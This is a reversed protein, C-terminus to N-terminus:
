ESGALRDAMPYLERNEVTMRHGLVALMRVLDIRFRIFSQEIAGAAGWREMFRDLEGYLPGLAEYLEAARRRVEDDASGLLSPYLAETEMAAHVRLKGAFSALRRRVEVADAGPRMALRTMEMAM